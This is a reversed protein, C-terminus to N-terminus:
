HKSLAYVRQQILSLHDHKIQKKRRADSFRRAILATLELRRDIGRLLLVCGDSAIDGGTFDAQMLRSKCTTFEISEINCKTM